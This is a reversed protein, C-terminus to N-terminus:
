KPPTRKLKRRAISSASTRWRTTSPAAKLRDDDPVIRM